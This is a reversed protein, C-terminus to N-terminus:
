ISLFKRKQPLLIPFNAKHTLFFHLSDTIQRNCTFAISTSFYFYLIKLCKTQLISLIKYSHKLMKQCTHKFSSLIIRFDDLGLMYHQPLMLHLWDYSDGNEQYANRLLRIPATNNNHSFALKRNRVRCPKGLFLTKDGFKAPQNLM